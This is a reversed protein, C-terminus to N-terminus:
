FMNVYMQSTKPSKGAPNNTKKSSVEAFKLGLKGPWVPIQSSEMRFHRTPAIHDNEKSNFISQLKEDGTLSFCHSPLKLLGCRAKLLRRKKVATMEKQGEGEM